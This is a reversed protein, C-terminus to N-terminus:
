RGNREHREGDAARRMGLGRWRGARSRGRRLHLFNHDGGLAARDVQLLGGYGCGHKRARVQHLLAHDADVLKLEDRRVQGHVVEALAIQEVDAADAAGVAAARDLRAHDGIAIADGGERAVELGLGVEVDGIDLHQAPRLSGEGALVGCAAGDEDGLDIGTQRGAVM